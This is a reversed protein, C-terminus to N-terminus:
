SGPFVVGAFSYDGSQRSRPSKQTSISTYLGAVCRLCRLPSPPSRTPAEPPREGAVFIKDAIERTAGNYLGVAETLRRFDSYM